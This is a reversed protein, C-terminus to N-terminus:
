GLLIKDLYKQYAETILKRNNVIASIICPKSPFMDLIGTYSDYEILGNIYKIKTKGHGTFAVMKDWNFCVYLGIHEMTPYNYYYYTNHICLIEENYGISIKRFIFMIKYFIPSCMNIFRSTSCILYLWLTNM